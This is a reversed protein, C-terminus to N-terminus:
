SKACPCFPTARQLDVKTGQAIKSSVLEHRWGRHSLFNTPIPLHQAPTLIKLVQPTPSLTLHLTKM